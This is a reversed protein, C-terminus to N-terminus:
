YNEVLKIMIFFLLRKINKELTKFLFFNKYLFFLDYCLNFLVKMKISKEM